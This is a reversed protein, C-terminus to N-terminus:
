QTIRSPLLSNPQEPLLSDPNYTFCPTLFGTLTGCLLRCLSSLDPAQVRPDSFLFIRKLPM